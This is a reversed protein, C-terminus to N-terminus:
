KIQSAVFTGLPGFAFRVIRKLEEKRDATTWFVNVLFDYGDKITTNGFTIEEWIFFEILPYTIAVNHNLHDFEQQIQNYGQQIATEITIGAGRFLAGVRGLRNVLGAAFPATAAGITGVILLPSNFLTSVAIHQYQVAYYIGLVVVILLLIAIVVFIRGILRLSFFEKTAVKEIDQIFDNLLRQTVVEMTFSPLGQQYLILSQWINTQQVLETRLTKSLNWNLLPPPNTEQSAPQAPVNNSVPVSDSTPTLAPKNSLPKSSDLPCLLTITRQWYDLSCKIASLTQSPLELNASLLTTDGSAAQIGPNLRYYAADMATSLATIKSQLTNIDRDNFTTRWTMHIKNQLAGVFKTDKPDESALASELPALAGSISWSLSALSHGAQYAGLKTQYDKAQTDSANTATSTSTYFSELLFSDWAEILRILLNSLVQVSAKIGDTSPQDTGQGSSPIANTARLAQVVNRQYEAIVSPVLSEEATDLLITLCNLARRTVDYLKFNTVFAALTPDNGASDAVSSVGVTAYNAGDGLPLPYLYPYPYTALDEASQPSPLDYVTNRTSSAPFQKIHLEVIQRFIARLTSTLWANDRLETSLAQPTMTTNTDSSTSPQPKLIGKVPVDKLVIDTLTTKIVNPQLTATSGTPAPVDLISASFTSSDKDFAISELLLNCAVIQIRSKLEILSWGLLFVDHIAAFTSDKLLDTSRGSAVNPTGQAPAQSAM